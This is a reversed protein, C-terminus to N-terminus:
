RSSPERRALADRAANVEHLATKAAMSAQEVLLLDTDLGAHARVSGLRAAMLDFRRQSHRMLAQFGLACCIALAVLAACAALLLERRALAVAAAPQSTDFRIAVAGAHAGSDDQLPSSMMLSESPSPRLVQTGQGSRFITAGSADTVTISAIRPDARVADDLLAQAKGAAAFHVDFDLGSQLRARLEGLAFRMHSEHVKHLERELHSVTVAISLWLALASVLVIPISTLASLRAHTSM